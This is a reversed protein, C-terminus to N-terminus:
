ALGLEGESMVQTAGKELAEKLYTAASVFALREKKTVPLADPQTLIQDITLGVVAPAPKSRAFITSGGFYEANVVRGSEDITLIAYSRGRYRDGSLGVATKGWKRVELIRRNFRRLQYYSLGFQAAWMVALFVFFFGANESIADIM